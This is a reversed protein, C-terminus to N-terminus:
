QVVQPRLCWTGTGSTPSYHLNTVDAGGLGARVVSALTTALTQGISSVIGNLENLAAVVVPGLATQLTAQTAASLGSSALASSLSTSASPLQNALSAGADSLKNGTSTVPGPVVNGAGFADPGRDPNFAGTFSRDPSAPPSQEVLAPGSGLLDVTGLDKINVPTTTTGQRVQFQIITGSTITQGAVTATTNAGTGSTLDTQGTSLSLPLDQGIALHLAGTHAYADVPATLDSTSGCWVQSVWAHGSASNFYIPLDLTDSISFTPGLLAAATALAAQTAANPTVSLIAESEAQASVAEACPPSAPPTPLPLLPEAIGCAHGYGDQPIQLVHLDLQASAVNPINLNANNLAVASGGNLLAADAGGTLLDFPNLGASGALASGDGLSGGANAIKGVGITTKGLSTSKVNAAITAMDAGASSQGSNTLVTAMGQLLDGYAVNGNLMQSPTAFGLATALDGLKVSGNAIGQYSLATIGASTPVGLEKNLLDVASSSLGARAAFTGIEIGTLGDLRAIATASLPQTGNVFDWKITTAAVVKVANATAEQSCSGVTGQPLTVSCAPSLSSFPPSKSADWTGIEVTLQNVGTLPHGNKQASASALNVARQFAGPSGAITPGLGFLGDQAAIDAIAHLQRKTASERGIDVAFATMTLLSLLLVATLIIIVGREDDGGRLRAQLSGM